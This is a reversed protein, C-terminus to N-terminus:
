MITLFFKWQSPLINQITMRNSPWIQAMTSLKQLSSWTKTYFKQTSTNNWSVLLRWSTEPEMSQSLAELYRHLKWWWTECNFTNKPKFAVGKEALRISYGQPRLTRVKDQRVLTNIVLLKCGQVSKWYCFFSSWWRKWDCHDYQVVM